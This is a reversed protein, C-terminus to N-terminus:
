AITDPLPSDQHVHKFHCPVKSNITAVLLISLLLVYVIKLGLIDLIRAVQSLKPAAPKFGKDREGDGRADLDVGKHAEPLSPSRPTEEGRDLVEVTM